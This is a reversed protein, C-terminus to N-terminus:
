CGIVVILSLLDLHVLLPFLTIVTMTGGRSSPRYHATTPIEGLRRHAATGRLLTGSFLASRDHIGRSWGM